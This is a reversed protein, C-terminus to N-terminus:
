FNNIILFFNFSIVTQLIKLDNVHFCQIKVDIQQGLYSSFYQVIQVYKNNLVHGNIITKVDIAIQFRSTIYITNEKTSNCKSFILPRFTIKNHRDIYEIDKM